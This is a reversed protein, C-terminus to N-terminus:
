PATAIRYVKMGPKVEASAGKVIICRVVTMMPFVSSIYISKGSGTDVILRDGMRVNEAINSGGVIIENKKIERVVGVLKGYSTANEKIREDPFPHAIFKYKGNEQVPAFGEVFMTNIGSTDKEKDYILPIVIVGTKDIFGTKGKKLVAALGGFFATAADYEPKIVISEKIDIFGTGDGKSFRILGESPVQLNKYNEPIITKGDKDILGWKSNSRYVAYGDRFFSCEDYVFPIKENGNKDIFGAKGQLSVAALGEIFFSPSRKFRKWGEPLIFNNKSDLYGWGDGLCVKPADSPLDSAKGNTWKPNDFRPEIKMVGEHDIYGLKGSVVVGALGESFPYVKEFAPQIVVKGTMDIFGSKGNLRIETLGDSFVSAYEYIVPVAIRGERNIFGWKDGSKVVALGGHFDGIFDYGENIIYRGEADIVNYKGGNMVVARGESFQWARDFVQSTLKNLNNDGYSSTTFCLVFFLIISNYIKM